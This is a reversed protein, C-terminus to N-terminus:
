SHTKEKDYHVEEFVISGSAITLVPKGSVKRGAFPTNKGKSYFKTSDIIWENNLDLLAIDADRGPALQGFPLGFTDAPKVTLWDILQKLSVKGSKVLGTHLLGFATELGTIGFPAGLLGQEKEEETHPAHDTAIFDITGDLLGDLLAQRDDKSRLPPNMKFNGDNIVDDESLLLHHPTVEATVKIGAKKADRIVRVSEKTSVHCVHYHCDAAEALLVDRAIQVSECVSPIGPVGLRKSTIGDHLVGKHILTNDECHAVIPMGLESAAEMASLMMDASQVGVGDDTFAFAGAKKLAAMDTLHKGLQRETIAAYPLVRVHADKEIKEQLQSLTEEKDPVPRTNPMACVTTFGGAAAALTGTHITEKAEGGPERLHIHIDVFGPVALNGECDIVEGSRDSLHEAIDVLKGNEIAIECPELQDDESLRLANVLLKRM